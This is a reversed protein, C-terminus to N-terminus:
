ARVTTLESWHTTARNSLMTRRMQWDPPTKMGALGLGVAGRGATANVKDVLAGILAGRPDPAFAPLTDQTGAPALDSLCIGARVYRRGEHMAPELIRAATRLVVLPDDTRDPLPVAGSVQHVPQTYWPTSAFAWLAGALSGQARLRRTVNQAYISLVQHMDRRTTVPTSFSRSFMLQDERDADRDATEICPTGRLELITRATNVTFRKRMSKPDTDRLQAATDIGLGALHVAMRRGIGWLDGVPTADLIATQRDSPYADWVAVGALTPSHKAGHSALKALTKTPAVGISVPLGLDHRVKTRIARAAEVLGAPDATQIRIFAEDISYVEVTPSLMRLLAMLRASMSGYLEYNSSRATVGHHAAWDRFKFWPVGMEVGLAKAETSRAIVCGDNNSLVVIPRGELEPHFVRECAAFCSDVDVLAFRTLRGNVPPPPAPM